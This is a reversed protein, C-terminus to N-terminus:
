GHYFYGNACPCLHTVGWRAAVGNWQGRWSRRWMEIIGAATCSWRRQVGDESQCAAARLRSRCLAYRASKVCGGDGTTRGSRKGAAPGATHHHIRGATTVRGWTSTGATVTDADRCLVSRVPKVVLHLYRQHKNEASSAVSDDGNMIVENGAWCKRGDPRKLHRGWLRSSEGPNWGPRSWWHLGSCPIPWESHGMVWTVWQARSGHSGHGMPWRPRWEIRVYAKCVNISIGKKFKKSTKNKVKLKVTFKKYLFLYFLVFTWSKM